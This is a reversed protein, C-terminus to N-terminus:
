DRLKLRTKLDGSPLLTPDTLWELVVTQTTLASGRKGDKTRLEPPILRPFHLDLGSVDAMDSLYQRAEALRTRTEGTMHLTDVHYTIALCLRDGWRGRPDESASLTVTAKHHAAHARIETLVYLLSADLVTPRYVAVSRGYDGNPVACSIHCGVFDAMHELAIQLGEFTAFYPEHLRDKNRDYTHLDPLGERESQVARWADLLSAFSQADEAKPVEKAFTRVRETVDFATGATGLAGVCLLRAGSEPRCHIHLYLGLGVSTDYRKVFLGLGADSLCFLPLDNDGVRLLYAMVEDSLHLRSQIMDGVALMSQSPFRTAIVRGFDDDTRFLAYSMHRFGEDLPLIPDTLVEYSTTHKM